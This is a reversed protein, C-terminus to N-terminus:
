KVFITPGLEKERIPDFNPNPTPMQAGVSDRWSRLDQLLEKAKETKLTILNTSEGIDYKLDFLEISNDDYHEILKYDGKRIAGMPNRTWQSTPFHWYLAERNLSMSKGRIIPVLSIGDSKQTFPVKGGGLDVFTSFLDYSNVLESSSVNSATNNLWRIILPVRIGGEYLSGKQDRLPAMTTVLPEPNKLYMDSILGGNDSYFCVLTNETLKLIELEDLLMKLSEDLMETMAAYTPHVNLLGTKRLKTNYKRILDERALLPAHVATHSVCILFPKNKNERIFEITNATIEGIKHAENKQAYNALKADYIKLDINSFGHDEPTGGVHWKGVLGCVYGERNLIDAYTMIKDNIQESKLPSKMKSYPRDNVGIVEWVGHRASNMGSVISARTPSCVPSAYANTFRMGERALKDITPTEIFNGGYCGLDRWGLDDVLFFLINPKSTQAVLFLPIFLILAILLSKM